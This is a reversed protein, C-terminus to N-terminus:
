KTENLYEIISDERSLDERYEEIARSNIRQLDKYIELEKHQLYLLCSLIIVLLFLGILILKLTNNKM